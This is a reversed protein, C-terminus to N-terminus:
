AARLAALGQSASLIPLTDVRGPPWVIVFARGVLDDADITGLASRSDASNPRNDGMVFYEGEPVTVPGFETMDRAMLYGGDDPFDEHIPQGDVYVVGDRTEIIEGPLGIVRKIFDRESPPAGLGSTLFDLAREPFSRQDPVGSLGADDRFVVVEGRRPERVQYVVKSVLVRDGVELTPLMSESPIYFAQILFTKLLLALVFAVFVLIPLEALFSRQSPADPTREARRPARTPAAM